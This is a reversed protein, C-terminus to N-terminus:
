TKNTSKYLRREKFPDNRGWLELLIEERNRVLQKKAMESDKATIFEQTDEVGEEFEAKIVQVMDAVAFQMAHM